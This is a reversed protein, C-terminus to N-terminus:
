PRSVRHRGPPSNAGARPMARPIRRTQHSGGTSGCRKFSAVPAPELLSSCASSVPWSALCSRARRITIAMGASTTALVDTSTRTTSSSWSGPRGARGSFSFGRWHVARPRPRRPVTAGGYLPVRTSGVTVCMNNVPLAREGPLGATLRTYIHPTVEGPGDSVAGKGKRVSCTKSPQPRPPTEIGM